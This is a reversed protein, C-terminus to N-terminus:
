KFDFLPCCLLFLYTFLWWTVNPWVFLSCHAAFETNAIRAVSCYDGLDCYRLNRILSGWVTEIAYEGPTLSTELKYTTLLVQKIYHVDNYFRRTPRASCILMYYCICCVSHGFVKHRLKLIIKTAEVWDFIYRCDSDCGSCLYKARVPLRWSSARRICVVASLRCICQCKSLRVTLM